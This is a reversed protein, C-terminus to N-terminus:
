AKHLEALASRLTGVQAVVEATDGIRVHHAISGVLQNVLALALAARFPPDTLSGGGHGALLASFDDADYGRWLNALEGVASGGHWMGWDILGSVRLDAGVFVHDPSLDGHCLVPRAPAPTAPSRGVLAYTRDAEDATLGAALLQPREARRDAVFLRRQHGPDPWRGGDPRWVGPTRVSHLVALVRGVETLATRRRADPLEPLVTLLPRGPVETVVMAPLGANGDAVTDLLLVDPVPVGAACAQDMAWVEGAFDSEGLRAVRVFVVRGGELRVRYVENDYGAVIRRAEAVRGGAARVALDAVTTPPLAFGAHLRALFDSPTM